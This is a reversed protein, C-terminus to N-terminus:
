AMTLYATRFNGWLRRPARDHGLENNGTEVGLEFGIGRSFLQDGSTNLTFLDHQGEVFAIPLEGDLEVAGVVTM